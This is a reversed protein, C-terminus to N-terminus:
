TATVRSFESAQAARKSQRATEAAELRARLAAAGKSAKLVAAEAAAMSKKLRAARALCDTLPLRSLPHLWVCARLRRFLDSTPATSTLRKTALM